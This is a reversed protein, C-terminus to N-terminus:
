HLGQTYVGVVTASNKMSVFLYMKNLHNFPMVSEIDKFFGYVFQVWGEINNYKYLYLYGNTTVVALCYADHVAFAAFTKISSQLTLTQFLQFQAGWHVMFISVYQSGAKSLFLAFKDELGMYLKSCLNYDGSLEQFMEFRRVDINYFWLSAGDHIKVDSSGGLVILVKFMKWELVDIHINKGDIVESTFWNNVQQDYKMVVVSGNLENVLMFSESGAEYLKVGFIESITLAGSGGFASWEVITQAPTNVTCSNLFNTRVTVNCNSGFMKIQRDGYPRRNVFIQHFSLSVDYQAPCDCKHDLGCLEGTDVTDIIFIVPYNNETDFKVKINSAYDLYLIHFSRGYNQHLLHDAQNIINGVRGWLPALDAQTPPTWSILSAIPFSNLESKVVIGKHLVVENMLELKRIVMNQDLFITSIYADLVDLRNLKTIFAPGDIFLTGTITKLDFIEQVSDSTKLVIDNIDLNNISPIRCDGRVVLNQFTIMGTIEQPPGAKRIINNLLFKLNIENINNAIILDKQISISKHFFIPPLITTSDAFVIDSVAVGNVLGEVTLQDIKVSNRFTKVGSIVNGEDIRFISRNLELLNVDNIFPSHLDNKSVLNSVTLPQKFIVPGKITQLQRSKVLGDYFIKRVDFNNIIGNSQLNDIFTTNTFIVDGTIVQDSTSTVSFKLIENIQSAEEEPWQVYGNVFVFNWLAKTLGYDLVTELSKVDCVMEGNLNGAVNLSEFQLDSYIEITPASLDILEKTKLGNIMSTNMEGVTATTLTWKEGIIQDKDRHLANELWYGIDVSNIQNVFLNFVTLGALFRKVGGIQGGSNTTVVLGLYNEIDIDNISGVYLNELELNGNIFVSYLKGESGVSNELGEVIETFSHSNIQTVTLNTARVNVFRLSELRTPQNIRVATQFFEFLNVGNLRTFILDGGVEVNGNVTVSEFQKTCNLYFKDSADNNLVFNDIPPHDILEGVFDKVSLVGTFTKTGSITTSSGRRVVVKDIQTLITEFEPDPYVNGLVIAKSFVLDVSGKPAINTYIFNEAPINNIFTAFIQPTSILTTWKVNGLTQDASKMWFEEVVNLGFRENNIFLITKLNDLKVNSLRLSGKITVKGNYVQSLDEVRTGVIHKSIFDGEDENALTLNVIQVQAIKVPTEIVNNGNLTAVTNGFDIGNILNAEVSPCHFMPLFFPTSVEQNTNLTFLTSVPFENVAEVNLQKVRCFKLILLNGDIPRPSNLLYLSNYFDNWNVGNISQVELNIIRSIGDVKKHEGAPFITGVNPDEPSGGFKISKATLKKTTVKGKFSASENRKVLIREFLAKPINLRKAKVKDVSEPLKVSRKPRNSKMRLEDVKKAVEDIGSLVQKYNAALNVDVNLRHINMRKAASLSKVHLNSVVIENRDKFYLLAVMNRIIEIIPVRSRQIDRINTVCDGMTEKTTGVFQEDVYEFETRMTTMYLDNFSQYFFTVFIGEDSKKIVIKTFNTSFNSIQYEFQLKVNAYALLQDNMQGIILNAGAAFTIVNTVDKHDFLKVFKENDWKYSTLLGSRSVSYFYFGDDLTIPFVKQADLYFLQINSLEDDKALTYVNIVTYHSETSEFYGVTVVIVFTSTTYTFFDNAIGTEVRELRSFHSKRWKYIYMTSGDDEDLMVDAFVCYLHRNFHFLKVKCHTGQKTLKEIPILLDRVENNRVIYVNSYEDLDAVFITYSRWPSAKIDSITQNEVGALSGIKKLNSKMESSQEMDVAFLDIGNLLFISGNSEIINANQFSPLQINLTVTMSKVRKEKIREIRKPSMLDIEFDNSESGYYNALIQNTGIVLILFNIKLIM